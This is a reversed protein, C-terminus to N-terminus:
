RSNGHNERLRPLIGGKGARDAYENPHWHIDLAKALEIMYVTTPKTATPKEEMPPFETVRPRSAESSTSPAQVAMPLSKGWQPYLLSVESLLGSLLGSWATM